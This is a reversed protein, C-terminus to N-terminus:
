TAAIIYEHNGKKLAQCIKKARQLQADFATGKMNVDVVVIYGRKMSATHPPYRQARYTDPLSIADRTWYSIKGRCEMRGLARKIYADINDPKGHGSSNAFPKSTVDQYLVTNEVAHVTVTREGKGLRALFTQKSYGWYLFHASNIASSEFEHLALLSPHDSVYDDFGPHVFRYCLCSKGVGEGNNFSHGQGRSLGLVSIMVESCMAPKRRNLFFVSM